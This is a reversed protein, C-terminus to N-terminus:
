LKKLKAFVAMLHKTGVSDFAIELKADKGFQQVSVIMGKGFKKHEVMDGAKYDISKSPAAAAETKKQYFM